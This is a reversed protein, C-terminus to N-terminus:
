ETLWEALAARSERLEQVQAHHISFSLTGEEVADSARVFRRLAEITEHTVEASGPLGRKLMQTIISEYQQKSEIM